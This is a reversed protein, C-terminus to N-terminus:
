FGIIFNAPTRLFYYYNSSSSNVGRIQARRSLGGNVYNSLFKGVNTYGSPENGHECSGESTWLRFWIM